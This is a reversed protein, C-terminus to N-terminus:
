PASSAVSSASLTALLSEWIGGGLQRPATSTLSSASTTSATTDSSTSTSSTTTSTQAPPLRDLKRTSSESSSRPRPNDFDTQISIEMTRTHSTNVLRASSTQASTSSSRLSSHLSDANSGPATSTSPAPGDVDPTKSSGTHSKTLKKTSTQSSSRETSSTTGTRSTKARSTTTTHPSSAAATRKNAITLKEWSSSTGFINDNANDNDDINASLQAVVDLKKSHDFALDARIDAATNLSDDHDDPNISPVLAHLLMDQNISLITDDVIANDHSSEPTPSPPSYLTVATGGQLTVVDPLVIHIPAALATCAMILLVIAIGMHGPTERRAM